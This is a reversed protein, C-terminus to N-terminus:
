PRVEILDPQGPRSMDAEVIAVIADERSDYQTSLPYEPHDWYRSVMEAALIRARMPTLDVFIREGIQPEYDPICRDHQWDVHQMEAGSRSHVMFPTVGDRSNWIYEVESGDKTAYKMLCFAETHLYGGSRKRFMAEDVTLGKQMQRYYYNDLGYGRTPASPESRPCV